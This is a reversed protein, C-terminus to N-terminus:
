LVTCVLASRNTAIRSRIRAAESPFIRILTFYHYPDPCNGNPEQKRDHAWGLRPLGGDLEFSSYDANRVAVGDGNEVIPPRYWDAQLTDVRRFTSLREPLSGFAEGGIQYEALRDGHLRAGGIPVSSHHGVHRDLSLVDAESQDFGPERPM